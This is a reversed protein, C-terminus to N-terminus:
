KEFINSGDPHEAVTFGLKELVKNTQKGGSHEDPLLARGMSIRAAIALVYKPPYRLKGVMVCWKRSRRNKPCRHKDIEKIANRVHAAKIGSTVDTFNM